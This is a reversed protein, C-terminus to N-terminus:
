VKARGTFRTVREKHRWWYVFGAISSVLWLLANVFVVWVANKMRQIDANGEANENIYMKGFLGFLAIWLIFLILNWVWALAFRLFYPICLLLATLASLGGVVEAYVWKGDAYKGAKRARDLEYGYLGCVTVALIFQFFHLTFFALYSKSVDGLRM